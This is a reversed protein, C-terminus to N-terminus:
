RTATMFAESFFLGGLWVGKKEIIKKNKKLNYLNIYM